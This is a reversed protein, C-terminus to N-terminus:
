GALMGGKGDAARWLYWSAVTRHPKWVEALRQVEKPKPLADLQKLISLGKQIGLDTAPLVDPRGLRFILLMQVTWCGVGKISTLREVLGEDSLRHAQRSDPVVGDIAGQAINRIYAVKSGSLGAARLRKVPIELVEGPRPFSNGPFLDLFRHFIVDAVQGSLQQYVVSQMLTAYISRRRSVKLIVPGVKRILGGLDPDAKKLHRVANETDM